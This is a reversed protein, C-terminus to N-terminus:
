AAFPGADKNSKPRGNSLMQGVGPEVILDFFGQVILRCMLGCGGAGGRRVSGRLLLDPEIPMGVERGDFARIFVRICDQM